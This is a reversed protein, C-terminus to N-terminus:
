MQLLRPLPQPVSAELPFPNEVINLKRWDDMGSAVSLLTECSTWLLGKITLDERPNGSGGSKVLM